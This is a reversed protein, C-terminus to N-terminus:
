IVTVLFCLETSGRQEKLPAAMLGRRLRHQEPSFSGFSKLWEEYTKGELGKVM